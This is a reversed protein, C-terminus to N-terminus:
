SEVRAGTLVKPEQASTRSYTLFSLGEKFLDADSETCTIERAMAPM